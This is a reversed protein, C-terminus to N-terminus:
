VPRLRDPFNGYELGYDTKKDETLKHPIQLNVKLHAANSLWKMSDEYDRVHVIGINNPAILKTLEYVSLRLRYKKLNYNHTDHLTNASHERNKRL